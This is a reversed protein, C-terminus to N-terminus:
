FLNRLIIDYMIKFEPGHDDDRWQVHNLATHTLEHAILSKLSKLSKLKGNERLTLFIIRYEARLNEDPGICSEYTLHVNKPKNLGEFKILLQDKKLQMEQLLFPTNVLLEIEPTIMENKLISTFGQFILDNIKQLLLAAKIANKYNLVKFGSITVYNKNENFDWLEYRPNM